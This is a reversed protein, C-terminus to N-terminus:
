LNELGDDGLAATSTARPLDARASKLMGSSIALWVRLAKVFRLFTSRPRRSTRQLVDRCRVCYKVSMV